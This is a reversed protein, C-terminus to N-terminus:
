KNQPEPDPIDVGFFEAGFRQLRQYYVMEEVTTLEKTTLVFPIEVTEGTDKNMFIKSKHKEKLREIYEPPLLNAKCYEHVEDISVFEGYAETFCESLIKYAIGFKARNQQISRKRFLKELRLTYDGESLGSIASVFRERQKIDLKGRSITAFTELKNM